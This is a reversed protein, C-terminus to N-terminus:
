CLTVVSNIWYPSRTVLDDRTDRIRCPGSGRHTFRLQDGSITPPRIPLSSRIVARATPRRPAAAVL